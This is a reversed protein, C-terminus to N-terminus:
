PQNRWRQSSAILSCKPKRRAIRSKRSETKLTPMNAYNERPGLYAAAKWLTGASAADLFDKWHAAKAKEITRTWERRKTKMEAYLDLTTPHDKGERACSKQWRRRTKNVEVQQSKLEPSFWRKAYPSPKAVPTHEEVAKMTTQILKEVAQDLQEKSAIEQPLKV